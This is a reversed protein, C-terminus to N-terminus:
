YLNLALPSDPQEGKTEKVQEEEDGADWGRGTVDSGSWGELIYYIVKEWLEWTWM